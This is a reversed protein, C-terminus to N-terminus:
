KNIKLDTEGSKQAEGELWGTGTFSDWVMWSHGPRQKGKANPFELAVRDNGSVARVECAGLMAGSHFFRAPAMAASPHHM